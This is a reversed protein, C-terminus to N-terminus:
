LARFSRETFVSLLKLISPWMRFRIGYKNSKLCERANVCGQKKVHYINLIRSIISSILTKFENFHDFKAKQGDFVHQLMM